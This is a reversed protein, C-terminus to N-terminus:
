APRSRDDVDSDDEQDKRDVESSRESQSNYDSSEDDTMSATSGQSIRDDTDNDDTGVLKTYAQIDSLRKVVDSESSNLRNAHRDPVHLHPESSTITHVITRIVDHADYEPPRSYADYTDPNNLEIDKFETIYQHLKELMNQAFSDDNSKDQLLADFITQAHHYIIECEDDSLVNLVKVAMEDNHNFTDRSGDRSITSLLAGTATLGSVLSALFFNITPLDENPLDFDVQDRYLYAVGTSLACLFVYSLTDQNMMINMKRDQHYLVYRM